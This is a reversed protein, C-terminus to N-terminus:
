DVRGSIGRGIEGIAFGHGPLVKRMPVADADRVVWTVASGHNCEYEPDRRPSGQQSDTGDSSAPAGDVDALGSWFSIATGPRRCPLTARTEPAARPCPRDCATRSACSPASMM